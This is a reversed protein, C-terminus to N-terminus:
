VRAGEGADCNFLAGLEAVAFARFMFWHVRLIVLAPHCRLKPTVEGTTRLIGLQLAGATGFWKPQCPSVCLQWRSEGGGPSQYRAIGRAFGSSARRAADVEFLSRFGLIPRVSHDGIDQLSDDRHWGVPWTGHQTERSRGTCPEVRRHFMGLEEVRRCFDGGM